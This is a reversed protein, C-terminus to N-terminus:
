NINNQKPILIPKSVPLKSKFETVKNTYIELDELEEDKEDQNDKSELGVVIGM